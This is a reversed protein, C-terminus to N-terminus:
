SQDALREYDRITAELYDIALDYGDQAQNTTYALVRTLWLRFALSEWAQYGLRFGSLLFRLTELWIGADMFSFEPRDLNAMIGVRAQAPLDAALEIEEDTWGSTLLPLTSSLDYAVTRKLDPPVPAAPDSGHRAGPQPGAMGALGSVADLCEIVMWRLEDLSGYLTHRKGGAVHHEYLGVGMMSTAYTLVTDIGWDSRSMVLQSGALSELAVRTLLLEGGLPQNLRPLFTGPFLLALGPRTIMWTIMADTAARPFRHRVVGYGRDAADEAGEIWTEDFNTIDADYFHVRERGQGAARRIATNMADGKGPRLDGIREQPIVSIPKSLRGSTEAAGAEVQRTTPGDESAVAWVEDIRSHSAATALNAIVLAPDEDKFPFVALSVSVVM